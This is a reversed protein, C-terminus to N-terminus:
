NKLALHTINKLTSYNREDEFNTEIAINSTLNSKVNTNNNM